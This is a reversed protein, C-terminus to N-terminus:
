FRYMLGATGEVRYKGDNMPSNKVTSPLAEALVGTFASFKPTFSYQTELGIYPNVSSKPQYANLGSRRAEDANIGYYYRNFKKNSYSVGVAPKVFLKPTPQWFYSYQAQAQMGKNTGSVDHSVQTELNGYPSYLNYSIDAM